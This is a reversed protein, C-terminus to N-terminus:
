ARRVSRASVHGFAKDLVGSKAKCFRREEIIPCFFILLFSTPLMHIKRM